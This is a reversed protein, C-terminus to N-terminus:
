QGLADTEDQQQQREQQQKHRLVQQDHLQKQLELAHVEMQREREEVRGQWDEAERERQEREKRNEAETTAEDAPMTRDEWTIAVDRRRPQGAVATAPTGGLLTPMTPPRKRGGPGGPLDAEDAAAWQNVTHILKGAAEARKHQSGHKTAIDKCEQMTLSQRAATPEIQTLLQTAYMMCNADDSDIGEFTPDYEQTTKAIEDRSVSTAGMMAGYRPCMRLSLHGEPTAAIRRQKAEAEREADGNETGPASPSLRGSGGEQSTSSNHADM